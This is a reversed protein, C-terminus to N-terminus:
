AAAEDEDESDGDEAFAGNVLATCAAIVYEPVADFDRPNLQMVYENEIHYTENVFKTFVKDGKLAIPNLESMIRFLQVKEYGVDTADFKAKLAVADKLESLIRAYDFSPIHEKVAETAELIGTDTLPTQQTGTKQTPVERLHLLSSLLDYEGGRSGHVEFRRRLYICKIADDSASSINSDCVQSFTNIDNAEIPKESVLGARGSLFHVAPDAATFQGSTGTLVIDVAPEIDHTLLLSTVDRLSNKGHFLQHLIAFKKTKDFSSIPDDLVVLDPQERNVHHMFLVLAFANKEGYSLHSSASELHGPADKHELLMRYSDGTAEIRVSYQYGASSLFENISAQNVQILNAVRRKQESISRRVDIIQIAVEDLKANILDVVLTTADSNLAHLLSLDVKLDKLVAGVDKEDRLAHFSLGQLASLKLLLTEVQGRLTALFLGEEPTIETLSTTLAELQKLYGPEFYRGLKDIANRLASMNKVAASEYEASVQTATAKDVSEVSCFPCNESLDLFAKGKSQWTIWGAPDSSQLFGTYGQLPAPINKLKGGVGLAKFGRSTKAVVGTKTVNFADRLETFSILAENFETQQAFTEKLSQFMSEIQELGQKYDDTNIFIEFSNKLVEDPQFVFQSVYADNFTLVSNIEEAGEVVPRPGDAKARYKFPTLEDLNGGETRLTLARAITSKGLGNPGYKINLSSRRLSINAEGISNCDKIRIQYDAPVNPEVKVTDIEPETM